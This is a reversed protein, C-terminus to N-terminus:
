VIRTSETERQIISAEVGRDTKHGKVPSVGTHRHTEQLPSDLVPHLIGSIAEGTSLLPFFIVKRSRSVVSGLAACCM